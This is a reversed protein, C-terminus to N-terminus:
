QLFALVVRNIEAPTEGRTEISLVNEDKCSLNACDVQFVKRTM